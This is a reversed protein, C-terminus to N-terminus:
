LITSREQSARRSSMRPEASGLQDTASSGAGRRSPTSLASLPSPRGVRIVEDDGTEPPQML